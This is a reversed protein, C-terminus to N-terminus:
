GFGNGNQRFNGANVPYPYPSDEVKSLQTRSSYPFTCIGAIIGTGTMDRGCWIEARM